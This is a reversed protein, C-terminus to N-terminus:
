LVQYVFHHHVFIKNSIIHFNNRLDFKEVVHKHTALRARARAYVSKNKNLGTVLAHLANRNRAVPLRMIKELSREDM